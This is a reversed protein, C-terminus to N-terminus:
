IMSQRAVNISSQRIADKVSDRISGRGSAAGRGAGAAASPRKKNGDEDKNFEGTAFSTQLKSWMGGAAKGGKLASGMPSGPKSGLAAAAAEEAEKKEKM